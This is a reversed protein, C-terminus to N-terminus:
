STTQYMKDGVESFYNFGSTGLYNLDTIHSHVKSRMRDGPMFSLFLEAQDGVTQHLSINFNTYTNRIESVYEKLMEETSATVIMHYTGEVWPDRSSSLNNNLLHLDYFAENVDASMLGMENDLNNYGERINSQEDAMEKKKKEVKKKMVDKPILTFRAFFDFPLGAKQLLYIFPMTQPFAVSKPLKTMTLTSRYGNLEYDIGEHNVIQSFRLHRLKNEIGSSLELEIDGADIRTEYDFDLYPPPMHPYFQRKIILLLEEATARVPRLETPKLINFIEREKRRAEKEENVSVENTNLSFISGTWDKVLEVAGSFGLSFVDTNSFNLEGRKAIRFGIYTNKRLFDQKKLHEAQQLVYNRFGPAVNNNMTTEFLQDNIMDVELPESTVILHCDMPETRNNMLTIFSNIIRSASGIKADASLFDYVTNSIRYYAWQEDKSFVINDIMAKVALDLKKGKQKSQRKKEAQEKEREEATKKAM